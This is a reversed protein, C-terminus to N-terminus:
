MAKKGAHTGESRILASDSSKPGVRIWHSKMM